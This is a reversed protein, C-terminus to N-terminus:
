DCHNFSHPEGDWPYVYGHTDFMRLSGTKARVKRSRVEGEPGELDPLSRGCLFGTSTEKSPIEAFTVTKGSASVSKVRFYNVLTMTAGWSCVLIDGVKYSPFPREM